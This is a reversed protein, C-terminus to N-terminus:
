GEADGPCDRERLEVADFGPLPGAEAPWGLAERARDSIAAWPQERFAPRPYIGAQHGQGRLRDRLAQAREESRFLGLSLSGALPGDTIPFNDFGAERLERSLRRVEAQSGTTPLYVWNDPSVEVTQLVLDLGIGAAAFGAALSESVSDSDVPGAIWCRSPESSAGAPAAQASAADPPEGPGASARGGPEAEVRTESAEEPEVLETEPAAPMVPEVAAVVDSDGDPAVAASPEPASVPRSAPAPAPQRVPPSEDLEKLLRLERLSGGTLDAAPEPEGPWLFVVANALLAAAILWHVLSLKM